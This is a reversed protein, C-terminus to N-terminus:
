CFTHVARGRGRDKAEYLARDAHRVLEDPDLVSRMSVVVGVSASVFVERGDFQFAEELSRIIREALLHTNVPSSRRLPLILLFEDGGLRAVVDDERCCDQLRQAAEVLLCDGAAHGLTDNVEKFRDLDVYLVAIHEITRRAASHGLRELAAYAGARNVLGTLPDTLAARAAAVRAEVGAVVLRRSTFSDRATITVFVVLGAVVVWDHIAAFAPVTMAWMPLQVRLAHPTGIVTGSQTGSSVAFLVALVIWKLQTSALTHLDLWAFVGFTLGCAYGLPRFLLPLGDRDLQDVLPPVLAAVWVLSVGTNVAFWALVVRPPLYSWALAALVAGASFVGLPFTTRNLLLMRHLERRVEVQVAPLRHPATVDDV